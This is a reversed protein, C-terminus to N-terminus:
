HLIGRKTYGLLVWLVVVDDAPVIISISENDFLGVLESLLDQRLKELVVVERGEHPLQVHIVEVLCPIIIVLVAELM